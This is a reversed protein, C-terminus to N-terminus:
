HNSDVNGLLMKFLRYYYDKTEDVNKGKYKIKYNDPDTNNQVMTTIFTMFKAFKDNLKDLDLYELKYEDGDYGDRVNNNNTPDLYIAQTKKKLLDTDFNSLTVKNNQTDFDINKFLLAVPYINQETGYFIPIHVNRAENGDNDKGNLDTVDEYFNPDFTGDPNDDVGPIHDTPLKYSLVTYANMVLFDSANYSQQELIRNLAPEYDGDSLGSPIDM